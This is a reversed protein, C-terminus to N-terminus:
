RSRRRVAQGREVRQGAPGLADLGHLGVPDALAAPHAEGKRVLQSPLSFTTPYEGRAGVGDHAHGEAGDGGLMRQGRMGGLFLGPSAAKMSSHLRPRTMSASRRVMSLFAHGGANEDVWGSVPLLDLDPDAVVHQHAVAFAGHHAHRRVVLAIEGECIRSGMLATIEGDPRCAKASAQCGHYASLVFPTQTLEPM